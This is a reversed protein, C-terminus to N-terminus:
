VSSCSLLGLFLDTLRVNYKSIFGVAVREPQVTLILRYLFICFSYNKLDREVQARSPWRCLTIIGSATYCLKSRRMILM